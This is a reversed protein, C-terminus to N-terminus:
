IPKFEKKSGIYVKWGINYSRKVGTYVPFSEPRGMYTVDSWEGTILDTLSSIAARFIIYKDNYIDYIKFPVFDNQGAEYDKGYELMSIKDTRDSSIDGM